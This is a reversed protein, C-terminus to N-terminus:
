LLFLLLIYTETRGCFFSVIELSSLVYRPYKIKSINVKGTMKFLLLQEVSQGKGKLSLFNFASHKILSNFKEENLDDGRFGSVWIWGLKTAHDKLPVRWFTDSLVARWNLHHDSSFIHKENDRAAQYYILIFESKLQLQM